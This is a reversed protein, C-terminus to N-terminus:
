EMRKEMILYKPYYQHAQYFPIVKENGAYVSLIQKQVGLSRFFDDARSLFENGIGLKRWAEEIFISDIEGTGRIVSCICYGALSEGDKAIMIKVTGEECKKLWEERRSAFTKRGYEGSFFPSTETHVRNLKVWLPEVLFIEEKELDSYEIGM